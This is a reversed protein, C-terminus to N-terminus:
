DPRQGERQIAHEPDTYCGKAEELCAPCDPLPCPPPCEGRDQRYLRDAVETAYCCASDDEKFPGKYILRHEWKAWRHQRQTRLQIEVPRKEELVVLHVARYGNGRYHNGIFNKYRIVKDGYAQLIKQEVSRVEALTPVVVRLGAIDRLAHPERPDATLILQRAESPGIGRPLFGEGKGDQSDWKADSELIMRYIKEEVKHPEKLAPRDRSPDRRTMVKADGHGATLAEVTAVVTILASEHSAVFQRTADTVAHYKFWDMYDSAGVRTVDPVSALEYQGPVTAAQCAALVVILLWPAGHKGAFTTARTMAVLIPIISARQL